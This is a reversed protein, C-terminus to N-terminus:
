QLAQQILPLLTRELSYRSPDIDLVRFTDSPDYATDLDLVGFIEGWTRLDLKPNQSHFTCGLLTSLLSVPIPLTMGGKRPAHRRIITELEGNTVTYPDAVVFSSLHPLGESREVVRCAVEVLLNMDCFHHRAKRPYLRLTVGRKALKLVTGVMGAGQPSYVVAPRLFMLRFGREAAERELYEDAELKAMAYAASPFTGPNPSAQNGLAQDKSRGLVSASSVHLFLAGRRVWPVFVSTAGQHSRQYDAYTCGPRVRFGGANVIVDARRILSEARSVPVDGNRPAGYVIREAKFREALGGGV